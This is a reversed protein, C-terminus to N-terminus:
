LHNRASSLIEKEWSFLRATSMAEIALLAETLHGHYSSSHKEIIHAMLELRKNMSKINSSAPATRYQILPKPVIGIYARSDTELMSLFFDWDEFGSRMTEDYGDCKTFANKRLIHTAPCCNRSWFPVINGGAPCVVADLVGFTHMWSSAAAM